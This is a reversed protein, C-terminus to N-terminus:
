IECFYETQIIERGCALATKLSAQNIADIHGFVYEYRDRLQTLFVSQLWSALGKGRWRETIFNEKIYLCPLGYLDRDQGALLAALGFQDQVVMMLGKSASRKLVDDTEIRVIGQLDPHNSLLREYEGRYTAFDGFSKPWDFELHSDASSPNTVVTKGFVVHNWEQADRLTNPGQKVTFGLPSLKQFERAVLDRIDSRNSKDLDFNMNLEIFPFDRNLSKYRVGALIIRNEHNFLVRDRLEAPDIPLNLVEARSKYVEESALQDLEGLEERVSTLFNPNEIVVGPLHQALHMAFTYEVREPLKLYRPKKPKRPAM